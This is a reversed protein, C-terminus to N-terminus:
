KKHLGETNLIKRLQKVSPTVLTVFLAERVRRQPHANALFGPAGAHQIGSYSARHTFDAVALRAEFVKRQYSPSPDLPTECLRHVEAELSALEEAIAEPQLDIFRNIERLKHNSRAIDDLIGRVIGFGIGAQLLLFGPRVKDVFPEAPRGLLDDDSIFADDCRLSYTATGELASFKGSSGLRVKEGDIRILAAIREEGADIIAGFLHGIGLNSVWPLAGNVIYGNSVRRAKLYLDELGSYHKIPNSLATGGLIRGTTLDELYRERLSANDTMTVYWICTYHCWLLFATSGCHRGIESTVDIAEAVGEPRGTLVCYADAAGLARLFPAPYYGEQDIRRVDPRLQEEALQAFSSTANTM